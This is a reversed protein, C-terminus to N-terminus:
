ILAFFFFLWSPALPLTFLWHDFLTLILLVAFLGQLRSQRSKQYACFWLGLLSLAFVFGGEAAALLWYNHAPQYSWASHNLGAALDKEQDYLTSAGLGSGLFPHQFFNNLGRQNFEQRENISTIELRNSLQTREWILEQYQWGFLGVLLLSLSLWAVVGRGHARLLTRHEWISVILGVVFALIAARSFSVLLGTFFLVYAALLVSRLNRERIQTWLYISTLSALAMLGGFINPHDSAGYARLWRGSATEIVVSGAAGADHSALGLYSSAFSLQGFFQGLGILAQVSLSALFIFLFSRRWSAPVSALGLFLSAASLWFLYRSFSLWPDPSIFISAAGSLLFLVLSWRWLRSKERWINKNIFGALVLSLIALWLLFIGAFLSIEWYNSAAPRLILKTQWPLAWVCLALLIFSLRPWFKLPM